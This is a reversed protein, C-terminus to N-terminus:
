IGYLLGGAVPGVITAVQWATSNLAIASALDEPPVLNPLLSQSAPNIFPRATGFTVLIAFIAGVTIVGTATMVLLALGCAGEVVQCLAMILRRNFRDAV